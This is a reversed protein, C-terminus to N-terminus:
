KEIQAEETKTKVFLQLLLEFGAKPVLAIFYLVINYFLCHILKVSSFEERVM